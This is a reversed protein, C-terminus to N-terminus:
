KRIIAKVIESLLVLIELISFIRIFPQFVTYCRMTHMMCLPMFVGPILLIAVSGQVCIFLLVVKALRNGVFATLATVLILVASAIVAMNQASHCRMWSGDDKPGCARFLTLSGVLMVLGILSPLFNSIHIKKNM